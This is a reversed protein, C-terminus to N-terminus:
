ASRSYKSTLSFIRLPMRSGRGCGKTTIWHNQPQIPDWCPPSASHPHQGQNPCGVSLHNLPIIVKHKAQLCPPPQCHPQSTNPASYLNSPTCVVSSRTVAKEFTLLYVSSKTSKPRARNIPIDTRKCWCSTTEFRVALVLQSVPVGHLNEFTPHVEGAGM